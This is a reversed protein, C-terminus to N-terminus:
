ESFMGTNLYYAATTLTGCTSLKKHEANQILM